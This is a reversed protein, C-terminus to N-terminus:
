IILPLNVQIIQPIFTTLAEADGNKPHIPYYTHSEASTNAVQGHDINSPLSSSDLQNYEFQIECCCGAAGAEASDGSAPHDMTNCCSRAGTTDTVDDNKASGSVAESDCCMCEEQAMTEQQNHCYHHVSGFGIGSVLYCFSLITILTRKM